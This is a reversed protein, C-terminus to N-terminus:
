VGVEALKHCWDHRRASLSRSRRNTLQSEHFAIRLPWRRTFHSGPLFHRRASSNTYSLFLPSLPSHDTAQSRRGTAAVGRTNKAFLALQSLASNAPIRFSFSHPPTQLLPNFFLLPIASLATNFRGSRLPLPFPPRAALLCIPIAALLAWAPFSIATRTRARIPHVHRVTLCNTSYIFYYRLWAPLLWLGVKCSTFGCPHQACLQRVDSLM